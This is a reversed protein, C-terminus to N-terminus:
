FQFYVFPTYGAACFPLVLGFALGYVVSFAPDSLSRFSPALWRRSMAVHTVSFAAILAWWLTPITQPNLMGRGAEIVGVLGLYYNGAIGLDAARFPVFSLVVIGAAYPLGLVSLRGFSRGRLLREVVLFAGHYLGWLVFRADAGHWLGCLFFVILLNVYIRVPGKKNGGLPIYVYDRFWTALSIHWRQWFATVSRSLWPFDFNLGLEYGLLGATAIAMDSYGSFDCYVQLACLLLALWRASIAFADPNAFVQDVVPAVNDAICAKKIFGFLFLTLCPRWAIEGWRKITELQPLFDTARVIPGAVLQPFFAVFVAFDRLSTIPALIRRYVDITYSLTQLTYFSIGVPLVVSLTALPFGLGISTFFAHGSEVFFDYYKFVGLLGLNAVLSVLLWRRRIGPREETALKLGVVYDIVTSAAILALFRYDWSGYFVYSCVLLWTKRWGNRPLAWYVGFCVAFFVFFVAQTFLM